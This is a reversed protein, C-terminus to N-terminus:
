VCSAPTTIPQYAWATLWLPTPSGLPLAVPDTFGSSNSAAHYRCNEPALLSALPPFFEGKSIKWHRSGSPHSTRVLTRCRMFLFCPRTVSLDGVTRSPFLSFFFNKECSVDTSRSRGALPHGWDARVGIRECESILRKSPDFEPEIFHLAALLVFFVVVAAFATRAWYRPNMTKTM